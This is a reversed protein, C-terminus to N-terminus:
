LSGYLYVNLKKRCGSSTLSFINFPVQFRLVCVCILKTVLFGTKPTKSWTLSLDAQAAVSALYLSSIESISVLPIICDLSRVVFTSILSCPHAPQDAGKNKAYPMFLNEWSMAWFINFPVHFRLVCVCMDEMPLGWDYGDTSSLKYHFPYNSCAWSIITSIVYAVLLSELSGACDRRLRRQEWVYLISTSSPDSWFDSM